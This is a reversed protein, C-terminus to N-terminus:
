QFAGIELSNLIKEGERTIYWGDINEDCAWILVKVIKARQANLDNTPDIAIDSLHSFVIISVKTWGFSRDKTFNGELMELAKAESVKQTKM